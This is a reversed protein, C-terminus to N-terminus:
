GASASAHPPVGEAVPAPSPPPRGPGWAWRHLGDAVARRGAADPRGPAPHGQAAASELTEWHRALLRLGPLPQGQAPATVVAM